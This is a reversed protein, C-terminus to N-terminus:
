TAKKFRLERIPRGTVAELAEFYEGQSASTRDGHGKVECFFWDSRDEAYMLLDPCQSNGFTERDDILSLLKVSALEELIRRKRKHKKFEYKEVLSLYGTAHYLV